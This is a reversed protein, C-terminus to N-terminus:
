SNHINIHNEEVLTDKFHLGECKSAKLYYMCHLCETKTVYQNRPSREHAFSNLMKWKHSNTWLDASGFSDEPKTVADGERLPDKM